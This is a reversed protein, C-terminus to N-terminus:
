PAFRMSASVLSVSGGLTVVLSTFVVQGLVSSEGQVVPIETRVPDGGRDVIDVTAITGAAPANTEQTGVNFTIIATAPDVSGENVTELGLTALLTGGSSRALISADGAGGSQMQTLIATSIAVKTALAWEAM